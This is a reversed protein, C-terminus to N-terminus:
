ATHRTIPGSGPFTVSTSALDGVSGDVPSYSNALVTGRYEPNSPGVAASTPRVKFPVLTGLMSWLLGDLEGSAYSQVFEIEVSGDKLGPVREVTGGSAMTTAEQDAVEINLTVSKVFESLDDGDLEVHADTLVLAM